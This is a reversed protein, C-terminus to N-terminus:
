TENPRASGETGLVKGVGLLVEVPMLKMKLKVKVEYECILKM